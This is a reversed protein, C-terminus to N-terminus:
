RLIFICRKHPFSPVVSMTNMPRSFPKRAHTLVLVISLLGSHLPPTLGVTPPHPPYVYGALSALTLGLGLIVSRAPFLSAPYCTPASSCTQMFVFSAKWWVTRPLLCSPNPHLHIPIAAILLPRTTYPLQQSCMHILLLLKKIPM